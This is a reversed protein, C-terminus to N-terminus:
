RRRLLEEELRKVDYADTAAAVRADGERVLKEAPTEESVEPVEEENARRIQTDRNHEVFLRRMAVVVSDTSSLYEPRTYQVYKEADYDQNRFNFNLEWNRYPWTVGKFVRKLFGPAKDYREVNLYVMRTLNEEVPVPWRTSRFYRNNGGTRSMGPLRTGNWENVDPTDAAPPQRRGLMQGKRKAIGDFFWTWLLRHKHLPWVGDVGPYYMQYPIKGDENYYYKEIAAKDEGPRYHVVKENVINVRYGLPTRPRGGLRSGLIRLSNRHVMFANHADMTNELVVVWNCDFMSFTPRHINHDEFMEPPIDERPDVPESNGMWVFVMGKLTVTPFKQAKMGEQGVMKSDPGETLFAVCNGDGDFTAGHYACTVFGEFYCKGMSLYVARHPCWDLLAQVEGKKDKFFIVDTGLMRLLSPGSKKVDKAPLAPYWYERFGLPPIRSRRDKPDDPVRFPPTEHVGQFGRRMKKYGGPYGSLQRSFLKGLGM